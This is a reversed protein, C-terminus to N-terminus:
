ENGVGLDLIKKRLSYLEEKIKKNVRRVKRGENWVFFADRWLLSFYGFFPLLLLAILTYKGDWISALILLIFFYFVYAGMEFTVRLSSNFELTNAAKEAYYKGIKVPLFNATIGFIFAPLGILLALTSWINFYASQALGQDSINHQDLKTKYQHLNGQLQEKKSVSLNNFNETFQLFEPLRSPKCSYIPLPKEKVSNEVMELLENGLADDKEDEIHIISKRMEKSIRDTMQKIAKRPNETHADLFDTIPIPTGFHAYICSRFKNPNTYNFGIPVVAIDKRQHKEYAGFAMRATGKQIPRMRREVKSVGEALIVLNEGKGMLDYCYEMIEQNKKIDAYGDRFRYIPICKLKKLFYETTKGKKFMDGRLLCNKGQTSHGCLISPETFATPHNGAMIFPQNMPLKDLGTFYIKRFFVHSYWNM